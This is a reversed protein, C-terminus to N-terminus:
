HFAVRVVSNITDGLALPHTPDVAKIAARLQAIRTLASTKLESQQSVDGVGTRVISKGSALEDQARRHAAELEAITWGLFPNFAM